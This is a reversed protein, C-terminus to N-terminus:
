WEERLTIKKNQFYGYIKKRFLFLLIIILIIAFLIFRGLSQNTPSIRHAYDNFISSLKTYFDQTEQIVKLEDLSEKVESSNDVIIIASDQSGGAGFGKGYDQLDSPNTHISLIIGSCGANGYVDESCISVNYQVTTDSTQDKVFNVIEPTNNQPEFYKKTLGNDYTMYTKGIKIGSPDWVTINLNLDLKDLSILANNSPYNFTINPFTNDLIDLTLIYSPTAYYNDAYDYSYVIFTYVGISPFETSSIISSM